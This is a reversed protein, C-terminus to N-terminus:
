ETLQLLATLQDHTSSTGTPIKNGGFFGPGLRDPFKRAVFGGMANELLMLDSKIGSIKKLYEVRIGSFMQASDSDLAPSGDNYTLAGYVYEPGWKLPSELVLKSMRDKEDLDYNTQSFVDLDHSRQALSAQALYSAVGNKEKVSLEAFDEINPPHQELLVGVTHLVEQLNDSDGWDSINESYYQSFDSNFLEIIQPDEWWPALRQGSEFNDHFITTGITGDAVVINERVDVASTMANPETVTLSKTSVHSHVALDNEHDPENASHSVWLTLALLSAICIPILFKM